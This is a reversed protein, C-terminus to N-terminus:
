VAWVVKEPFNTRGSVDFRIPFRLDAIVPIFTQLVPHIFAWSALRKKASFLPGAGIMSQSSASM